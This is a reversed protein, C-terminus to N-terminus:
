ESSLQDPPHFTELHGVVGAEHDLIGSVVAVVLVSHGCVVPVVVVM